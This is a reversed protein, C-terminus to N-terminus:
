RHALRMLPANYTTILSQMSDLGDFFSASDVGDKHRLRAKERVLKLTSKPVEATWRPFGITAIKHRVTRTKKFFMVGTTEEREEILDIANRDPNDLDFGHRNLMRKLERFTVARKDSKIPRMKSKFWHSIFRVEPDPDGSKQLSKYRAYKGLNDEAVDVVFDEIEGESVSPCYNAQYLQYLISLFATRKNADHFCHNKAIGYFLTASIDFTTTWKQHGGYGSVQRCVTSELAHFDKPGIGGIGQGELYFHNAIMFHARVVDSVALYPPSFPAVERYGHLVREYESNIEPELELMHLDSGSTGSHPLGNASFNDVLDHLPYMSYIFAHDTLSNGIEVTVKGSRSRNGRDFRTATTNRDRGLGDLLGKITQRVPVRHLIDGGVKTHGSIGQELPGSDILL